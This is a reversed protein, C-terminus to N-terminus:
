INKGTKKNYVHIISSMMDENRIPRTLFEDVGADFANQRDRPFVHASICIIPANSYQASKRLEKVLQLGDKPGRLSIDVLFVEFNNKSLQENFTDESDCVSIRFKRKLYTEILRQNELDDEVVLLKPRPDVEESVM